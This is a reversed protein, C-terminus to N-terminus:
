AKAVPAVPTEVSVAKLVDWDSVKGETYGAKKWGKWKESEAAPLAQVMGETSYGKGLNGGYVNMSTVTKAQDNIALLTFAPMGFDHDLQRQLVRTAPIPGGVLGFKKREAKAM